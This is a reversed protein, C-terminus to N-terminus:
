IDCGDPNDPTKNRFYKQLPEPFTEFLTGMTIIMFLAYGGVSMITVLVSSGTLHASLVLAGFGYVVLLALTILRALWRM